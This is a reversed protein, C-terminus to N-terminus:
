RWGLTRGSLVAFDAAVADEEPTLHALRRCEEALRARYGSDNIDPLWPVVPRLGPERQAARYRAVRDRHTARADM